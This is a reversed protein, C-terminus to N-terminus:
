QAQRRVRILSAVMQAASKFSIKPRYCANVLRRVLVELVEFLSLFSFGVYMGM